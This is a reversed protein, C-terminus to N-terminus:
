LTTKVLNGLRDMTKVLAKDLAYIGYLLFSKHLM